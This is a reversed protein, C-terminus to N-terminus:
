EQVNPRTVMKVCVNYKDEKYTSTQKKWKYKMHQKKEEKICM